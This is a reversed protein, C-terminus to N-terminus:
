EQMYMEIMQRHDTDSLTICKCGFYIGVHPEYRDYEVLFEYRALGSPHDLSEIKYMLHHRQPVGQLTCDLGPPVFEGEVIRDILRLIEGSVPFGQVYRMFQDSTDGDM